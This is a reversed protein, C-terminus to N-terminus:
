DPAGGGEEGVEPALQEPSAITYVGILFAAILLILGPLTIEMFTFVIMGLVFLALSMWKLKV